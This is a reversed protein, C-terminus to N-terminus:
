LRRVKDALGTGHLLSNLDQLEPDRVNPGVLVEDIYTGASIPLILAKGDHDAHLKAGLERPINGIIENSYELVEEPKAQRVIAQGPTLLTDTLVRYASGSLTHVYLRVEQQYAFRNQVVFAVEITNAEPVEDKDHDIYRIQGLYCPGGAGLFRAAASALLNPSTRLAMARGRNGFKEKWMKASPNGESAHWCSAYGRLADKKYLDATYEAMATPLLKELLGLNPRPLTGELEDHFQDLRALWIGHELFTQLKFMQSVRIFHWLHSAQPQQPIFPKPALQIVTM